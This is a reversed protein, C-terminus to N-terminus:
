YVKESIWVVDGESSRLAWLVTVDKPEMGDEQM